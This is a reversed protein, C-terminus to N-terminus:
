IMNKMEVTVSDDNLKGTLVLIDKRPFSYRLNSKKTTDSYSFLVINRAVTDPTFAFDKVSTNIFKLFSYGTYSM